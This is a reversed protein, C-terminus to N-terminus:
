GLGLLGAAVVALGLGFGQPGTIPQHDILRALVVTIAPYLSTLMTVLVLDGRQSALLFGLNGVLDLVGIWFIPLRAAGIGDTSLNRVRILITLVVVSAVRSAVVPWVGSDVGTQGYAAFLLGFGLGALLGLTVAEINREGVRVRAIGSVLAVAPFALVVGVWAVTGPRSGTLTGVIVPLLAGVVASIPAVVAAQGRAIGRYLFILGFFGFQGGIVGFLLDRPTPEGGFATATAVAVALGVVQSAAIVVMEPTKSSTRGGIFDASGYGLASLVALFVATM